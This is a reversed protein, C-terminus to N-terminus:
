AKMKEQNFGIHAGMKGQIAKMEEQNSNMRTKMKQDATMGALLCEVMQAM